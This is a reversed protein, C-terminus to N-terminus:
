PPLSLNYEQMAHLAMSYFTISAPPVASMSQVALSTIAVAATCIAQSSQLSSLVFATYGDYITIHAESRGTFRSPACTRM